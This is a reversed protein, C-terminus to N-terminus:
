SASEAHETYWSKRYEGDVKSTLLKQVEGYSWRKKKSFVQYFHFKLYPMWILNWRNLHDFICISVKRYGKPRFNVQVLFYFFSSLLTYKMQFLKKRNWYFAQKKNWLFCKSREFSLYICFVHTQVKFELRIM